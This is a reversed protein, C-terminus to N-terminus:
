ENTTQKKNIKFKIFIYPQESLYRVIHTQAFGVYEDWKQKDIENHKRYSIM